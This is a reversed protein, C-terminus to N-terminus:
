RWTATNPCFASAPPRARSRRRRAEQQLEEQGSPQEPPAAPPLGRGRRAVPEQGHRPVDSLTGSCRSKGTSRRDFMLEVREAWTAAMWRRQWYDRRRREPLLYIQSRKLFRDVISVVEINQRGPRGTAASGRVNLRDSAQGRRASAEIIEDDILSNM